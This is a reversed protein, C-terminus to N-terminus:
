TSESARKHGSKHNIERWNRVFKILTREVYAEYIQAYRVFNLLFLNQSYMVKNKLSLKLIVHPFVFSLLIKFTPLDQAGSRLSYAASCSIEKAAPSIPVEFDGADAAFDATFEIQVTCAGDREVSCETHMATVTSGEDSVATTLVLLLLLTLAARLLNRM